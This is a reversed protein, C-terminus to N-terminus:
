ETPKIYVTYNKKMEFFLSLASKESSSAAHEFDKQLKNALDENAPLGGSLCIYKIQADAIPDVIRFGSQRLGYRGHHVVEAPIPGFEVASFKRFDVWETQKEECRIYFNFQTYDYAPVINSFIFLCVFFVFFGLGLLHLKM